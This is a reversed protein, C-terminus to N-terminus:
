DAAISARFSFHSTTFGHEMIHNWDEEQAKQETENEIKDLKLHLNNLFDIIPQAITYITEGGKTSGYAIFYLFTPKLKVNGNSKLHLPTYNGSYKKMDKVTYSSSGLIIFAGGNKQIKTYDIFDYFVEYQHICATDGRTMTDEKVAEFYCKLTGSDKTTTYVIALPNQRAKSLEENKELLDVLQKCTIEKDKTLNINITSTLSEPLNNSIYVTLTDYGLFIEIRKNYKQDIINNDFLSDQTKRFPESMQGASLCITNFENKTYYNHQVEEQLLRWANSSPLPISIANPYYQYNDIVIPHNIRETEIEIFNRASGGGAFILPHPVSDLVSVEKQSSIEHISLWSFFLLFALIVTFTTGMRKIKRRGLKYSKELAAKDIRDEAKDKLDDLYKYEVYYKDGLRENVIKRAEKMQPTDHEHKRMFVIVEPRNKENLSDTAKYFEDKTKEGLGNDIIFLAIDAENVIFANYEKQDDKFHEYSEAIICIGRSQYKSSLENALAKICTREQQLSKAGAIFIKISKM